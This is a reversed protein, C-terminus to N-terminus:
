IGLPLREAWREDPPPGYRLSRDYRARDFTQAFIAALGCRLDRDPPLLPIPIAPLRDTLSWAYIDCDPRKTFRSVMAYFDGAPLSGDVPLRQGGLWLRQDCCRM